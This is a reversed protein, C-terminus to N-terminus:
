KGPGIKGVGIKRFGLQMESVQTFGFQNPGVKLACGELIRGEGSGNDLFGVKKTRCVDGDIKQGFGFSKILSLKILVEVRLELLGM